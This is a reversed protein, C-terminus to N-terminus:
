NLSGLPEGGEFGHSADVVSNFLEGGGVGVGAEIAEVGDAQCDGQGVPVLGEGRLLTSSVRALKFHDAQEVYAASPM